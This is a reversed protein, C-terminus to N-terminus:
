VWPSLLNLLAVLSWGRRITCLGYREHVVDGDVLRLDEVSAHARRADAAVPDVRRRRGARVRAGRAETPTATAAVLATLFHSLIFRSSIFQAYWDPKSTRGPRRLLLRGGRLSVLMADFKCSTAIYIWEWCNSNDLSFLPFPLDNTSWSTWRKLLYIHIWM